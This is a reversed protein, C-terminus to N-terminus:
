APTKKYLESLVPLLKTITTQSPPSVSIKDFWVFFSPLSNFLLRGNLFEYQYGYNVAVPSMGLVVLSTLVARFVREHALNFFETPKSVM